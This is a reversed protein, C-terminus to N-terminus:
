NKNCFLYDLPDRTCARGSGDFWQQLLFKGPEIMYRDRALRIQRDTVVNRRTLIKVLKLYDQIRSDTQYEPQSLEDGFILPSPTGKWTTKTKRGSVM